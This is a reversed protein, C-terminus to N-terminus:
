NTLRVVSSFSVREFIRSVSVLSKWQDSQVRSALYPFSLLWGVLQDALWGVFRVNAIAQPHENRENDVSLANLARKSRAVFPITGIKISVRRGIDRRM